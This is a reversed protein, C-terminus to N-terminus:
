GRPVAVNWWNPPSISALWTSARTPSSAAASGHGAGVELLTNLGAARLMGAFREREPQKWPQDAMVEREDAKADYARRLDRKVEAYTM